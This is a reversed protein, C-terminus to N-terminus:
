PKQRKLILLYQARRSAFESPRKKGSNDVCWKLTDGDLEYIGSYSRRGASRVTGAADIEKLKKSPDLKYTGEGLSKKERVDTATIKEATIVLELHLPGEDSKEGKGHVVFGRWTGQLKAREKTEEDSVKPEAAISPAQWAVFIWLVLLKAYTM